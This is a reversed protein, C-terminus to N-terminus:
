REEERSFDVYLGEQWPHNYVAVTRRLIDRLRRQVTIIIHESLNGDVIDKYFTLINETVRM